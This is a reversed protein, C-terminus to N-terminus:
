ASSRAAEAHEASFDETDPLRRAAFESFDVPDTEFGGPHVRVLRSFAPAFRPTGYAALGMVKYEDSSRHFGLHVTLEEYLLGLSHPLTQTALVQLAGARVHGALFSAREGRGDCVLVACDDFPAALYASAAHAVHHAVFRTQAREIGPLVSQLFLPMRTAYLTRLPEWAHQTVDGNVPLALSPDYSYAVADIEEPAVGGEKLCWRASLAPLEWASFPTCEKAHKRRNFREEEAAAVVIGDRVLAASSDHFVANIGLVNM